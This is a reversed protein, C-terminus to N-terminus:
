APIAGYDRLFAFLPLLPLGLIAFFDGEVAEFLQAGLGELQYAGVSALVQEGARRLYDDIAAEKLTRMTLTPTECHQWVVSEAKVVVACTVLQHAKGQLHRLHSKAENMNRPKDFLQGACVLIQDAGIVLAGPHGAAVARAKAQALASAIDAAPVGDAQMRTKIATEDVNSPVIDVVLGAARVMAARSPSASALILRTM